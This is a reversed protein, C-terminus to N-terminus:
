SSDFLHRGGNEETDAVREEVDGGGDGVIKKGLVSPWSRESGELWDNLKNMEFYKANHGLSLQM